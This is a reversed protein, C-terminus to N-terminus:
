LCRDSNAHIPGSQSKCADTVTAVPVGLDDAIARWSKGDARLRVAEDRRFIRKPRGVQTGCAKAARVGATVRERILEAGGFTPDSRRNSFHQTWTNTQTHPHQTSQVAEYATM